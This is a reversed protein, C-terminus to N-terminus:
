EQYVKATAAMDATSDRWTRALLDRISLPGKAGFNALYSADTLVYSLGDRLGGDLIQRLLAVPQALQDDFRSWQQEVLAQLLSVFGTILAFDARLCEQI